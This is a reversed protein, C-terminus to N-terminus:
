QELRKRRNSAQPQAPTLPLQPEERPTERSEPQPAELPQCATFDLAYEIVADVQSVTLFNLAKRVTPDIEELDPENDAPIIVTHVGHRLAAMTKERLGGIPLVRGRISIEGTMAIDRRVTAGSLASVMATTITVGASPGDKPVAGAPFHVHIDRTKYFDEPIHFRRARTRIYSQALQVSEKMVEGLNGTCILKGSGEMVTCEVELTEGGVATWALGTVIGVTEASLREPHFKRVGLYHELNSGSVNVRKTDPQEVLQMAARRCLTGLERELSRVGSERPYGDIAERLAAESVRLAGKPIGNKEMQRPLLYRKAIIVKEEDTYSPLEIVEMRDLLARPITDTTNATTIFFVESLDFPLELYHDRFTSNQASDLVELLASSPDGRYDSGMKDIEDFLLLANKSGAQRM